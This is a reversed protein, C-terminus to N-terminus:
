PLRSASTSTSPSSRGTATARPSATTAAPPSSWWRRRFRPSSTTTGATPTRSMPRGATARVAGAGEPAAAGRHRVRAAAAPLLRQAPVRGLRRPHGPRGPAGAVWRVLPGDHRGQEHRATRAAPDQGAELDAGLRDGRRARRARLREPGAAHRARRRRRHRVGRRRGPQPLGRRRLNSRDCGGNGWVVLPLSGPGSGTSTPPDTSPSTTWVRPRRVSWRTTSTVAPIPRGVPPSAPDTGPCRRCRSRPRHGRRARTDPQVEDNMTGETPLRRQIDTVPNTRLRPRRQPLGPRGDAPVVIASARTLDVRYTGGAEVSPSSPRPRPAATSGSRACSRPGPTPRVVGGPRCRAPLRRVRRAVDLEFQVYWGDPDHVHSDLSITVGDSLLPIQPNVNMAKDYGRIVKGGDVLTM